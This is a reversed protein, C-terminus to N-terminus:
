KSAFFTFFIHVFYAVEHGVFYSHAWRLSADAKADAWDSWEVSVAHHFSSDKAVVQWSQACLLVRILSAFPLASGLRRQAYGNQKNQWSTAWIDVSHKVTRSFQWTQQRFLLGNIFQFICIPPYMSQTMSFCSWCYVTNILNSESVHCCTFFGYDM